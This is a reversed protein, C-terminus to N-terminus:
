LQTSPAEENGLRGWDLYKLGERLGLAILSSNHVISLSHSSTQTLTRLGEGGEILPHLSDILQPPIM